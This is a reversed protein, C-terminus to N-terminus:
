NFYSYFTLKYLERVTILRRCLITLAIITALWTILVLPQEILSDIGSILLMVALTTAYLLVGKLILKFTRM